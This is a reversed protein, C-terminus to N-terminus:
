GIFAYFAHGTLNQLRDAAIFAERLASKDRKSLENPNLYNDPQQGVSLQHLSQRIRLMMLTEYANELLENEEESMVRKKALKELRKFTNTEVIGERLSFIRLCDVIHVCAASKLNVLNRHEKTKETIIQKFFTLPIRHSLDDKALFLLVTGSKQFSRTVFNRLLDCLTKKGYVYRFDLFITMMRINEPDLKDVWANITERWGNFSRCWFPNSAMVNGKCKAFGCRLLSEVVKEALLQFYIIVAEEKDPPVNDYIIGNDQDTKVFQEQRGSSGMTIWSYAVPPPGYGETLMEQECVQIVKQTLRDYFETIIQLIEQSSAREEVLAQLIKDIEASAKVLGDVTDQREISSVIALAGTSRSIILDRITILGSLKQNAIVILHKVKHKVMILLAEYYFAEAAVTLCNKAMIDGATLGEQCRDHALVKGVLDRETVIGRPQGMEDIVVLSSVAHATMQKAMVTIEDQLHCTVLPASMLDAVRRRMPRDLAMNTQETVSILSQYVTRMREALIRSFANAFGPTRSLETEFLANPIVICLLDTAAQVSAPYCDESFFVMEGFFELEQRKSVLVEKDQKDLVTIDASGSVLVFLAQLSPDGQRFVYIGKPFQRIESKAIISELTSQALHQFPNVKKLISSAAIPQGNYILPKM